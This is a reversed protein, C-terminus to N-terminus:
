EHSHQLKHQAWEKNQQLSDITQRPALDDHSIASKARSLMAWGILIVILGLGAPAVWQALPESMGARTLLTGTLHGLGILMVILGAYAVFGGIAIQVAHSTLRSANEKLETKALAVEQRLLTTTEDRLERLLGPLSNPNINESNM